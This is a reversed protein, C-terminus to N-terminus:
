RSALLPRNEPPDIALRPSLRAVSRGATVGLDVRMGAALAGSIALDALPFVVYKRLNRVLPRAGLHLRREAKRLLYGRLEEDLRLELNPVQARFSDEIEQVCRDLVLPLHEARLRKFVIMRDLRGVLQPPFEAEIMRRAQQYIREDIEDNGEDELESASQFGVKSQHIEDLTATCSPCEFIFLTRRLDFVDGAGLPVTGFDLLHYVVTRIEPTAELFDDIVIVAHCQRTTRGEADTTSVLGGCREVHFGMQEILGPGNQAAALSLPVVLDTRGYLEQAVHAALTTKGTGTPGLFMYAGLPGSRSTLQARAVTLSRVMERVALEQGVLGGSLRELLHKSYLM